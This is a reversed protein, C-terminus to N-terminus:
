WKRFTWLIKERRLISAELEKMDVKRKHTALLVGLTPSPAATSKGITGKIVVRRDNNLADKVDELLSRYLLSRL